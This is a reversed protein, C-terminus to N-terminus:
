KKLINSLEVESSKNASGLSRSPCEDIDGDENLLYVYFRTPSVQLIINNRYIIRKAMVSFSHFYWITMPNIPNM